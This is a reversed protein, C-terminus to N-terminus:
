QADTVTIVGLDKGADYNYSANYKTPDKVHIEVNKTSFTISGTGVIKSDDSCDSAAYITASCTDSDGCLFASQLETFSFKKSPSHAPTVGSPLLNICINNLKMTSPEASNNQVMMDTAMALGSVLPLAACLGLIIKKM